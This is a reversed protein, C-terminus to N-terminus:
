PKKKKIEKHLKKVANAHDCADYFSDMMKEKASSGDAGTGGRSLLLAITDSHEYYRAIDLATDGDKDVANINTGMDLLYEIIADYGHEAAVMVATEGYENIANPDAGESILRRVLDFNGDYSATVIDDQDEIKQEKNESM